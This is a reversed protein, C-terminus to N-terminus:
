QADYYLAAAGLIGSNQLVSTKVELKEISKPFAFTRIRNWMSKEFFEFALQVSGGLIIMETDYTYMILKIANGLHLRGIVEAECHMLAYESIDIGFAELGPCVKLLDKVLFGKGCGVDLVRDGARLDFHKVMDEAVPIWRGDYRYGGYGYKRPGDFYLEGYQRSIAIAEETKAEARANVNRKPKPLKNLLHVEQQM